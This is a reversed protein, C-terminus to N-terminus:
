WQHVTCDHLDVFNRSSSLLSWSNVIKGDTDSYWHEMSMWKDEVLTCSRYIANINSSSVLWNLWVHRHTHRHCAPCTARIPSLIPTYLTKTPFGSPFLGSPLGLCLHSSLILTSRWSTTHPPISQISSAWSLSLHRASTFATGLRRIGYFTPFKNVLQPGTLKELLVTSCPTLLDTLLCALLCTLLYTLLHTHTRAHM